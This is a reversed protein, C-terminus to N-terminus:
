SRGVSDRPIPNYDAFAEGCHKCKGRWAPSLPKNCRGCAMQNGPYSNPGWPQPALTVPAARPRTVFWILTLVIMGVCWFFFIGAVAVSPAMPEPGERFPYFTPGAAVWAISLVTWILLLWTPVRWRKVGWRGRQLGDVPEDLWEVIAARAAELAERRGTANGRVSVASRRSAM